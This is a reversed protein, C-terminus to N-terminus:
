QVLDLKNSPLYKYLTPQSQEGSVNTWVLTYENTGRIDLFFFQAGSFYHWHEYPRAEYYEMTSREIEDPEGYKIYIRGRDTRYGPKDGERYLDKVHDFREAIMTYDHTKWFKELFIARGEEPLKRFSAYEESSIFYEIEQYYPLAVMTAERSVAKEIFFTIEKHRWGDTGPDGVEVVLRYQGHTLSQIDLGFNVSAKPGSYERTRPVRRIVKGTSDVITYSLRVSDGAALEYLEYYVFLNKYRDNFIHSPQPVVLLNGKRLYSEVTDFAISRALLIDSMGYDAPTVKLERSIMGRKEGSLIEITYGFDGDPVHLGFQVIFSMQERTAQAFSPVTFRRYLTDLLSDRRTIDLLKFIITAQAAITDATTEYHLEQHPIDCNFEVYYAGALSSRYVVPDCYFKIDEVALFLILYIM